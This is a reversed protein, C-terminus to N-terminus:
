LNGNDAGRDHHYLGLLNQKAENDGEDISGSTPSLLLLFFVSGNSAYLPLAIQNSGYVDM